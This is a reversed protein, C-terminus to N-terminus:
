LNIMMNQYVKKQKKLEEYSHLFDKEIEAFSFDIRRSKDKTNRAKSEYAKAYDRIIGEIWDKYEQHITRSTSPHILMSRKKDKNKHDGNIM